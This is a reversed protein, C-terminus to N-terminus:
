NLQFTKEADNDSMRIFTTCGYVIRYAENGYYEVCLPIIAQMLTFENFEIIRVIRLRFSEATVYEAEKLFIDGRQYDIQVEEVYRYYSDTPVPESSKPYCSILRNDTTLYFSPISINMEEQMTSSLTTLSGNENVIVTERPEWGHGIFASEGGDESDISDNKTNTPPSIPQDDFLTSYPIGNGDFVYDAEAALGYYNSPDNEIDCATLGGILAVVALGLIFLKTRSM